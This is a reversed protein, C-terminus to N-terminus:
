VVEREMKSPKPPTQSVNKYKVRTLFRASDKFCGLTYIVLNIWESLPHEFQKWKIFLAAQADM